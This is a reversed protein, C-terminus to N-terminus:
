EGEEDGVRLLATVVDSYFLMEALKEQIRELIWRMKAVQQDEFTSAKLEAALEALYGLIDVQAALKFLPGMEGSDRQRLLHAVARTNGRQFMAVLNGAM